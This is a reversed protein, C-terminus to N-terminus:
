DLSKEQIIRKTYRAISSLHANLNKNYYHIREDLFDYCSEDGKVALRLLYTRVFEKDLKSFIILDQLDEIFAFKVTYEEFGLQLNMKKLQKPDSTILELKM